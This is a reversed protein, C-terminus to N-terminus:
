FLSILFQLVNVIGDIQEPPLEHGVLLAFASVFAGIIVRRKIKGKTEM